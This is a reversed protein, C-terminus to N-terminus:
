KAQIFSTDQTFHEPYHRRLCDPCIGHSIDAQSNQYIYSDVEHWVDKDDRIKKCYSCLPLIGELTKVDDLAKQLKETRQAVKKELTQNLTLLEKEANVRAQDVHFLQESMRNYSKAVMTLEDNGTIKIQYGLNGSTINESAKRLQNTARTLYIGLLYSFVATFIIQLTAFSLIKHKAATQIARLHQTTFGIEIRGYNIGEENIEIFTDFIGDDISDYSDDAKFPRAPIQATGSHALLIDDQGFIRVYKIDPRKLLEGVFSELTALDMALISSKNSIAFLEATTGTRKILATENSQVLVSMSNWIILSLM